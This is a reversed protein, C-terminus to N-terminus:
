LNKINQFTHIKLLLPYLGYIDANVYDLNERLLENLEPKGKGYDSRRVRIQHPIMTHSMVHIRWNFKRYSTTFDTIREILHVFVHWLSM